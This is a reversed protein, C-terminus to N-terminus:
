IYKQYDLYEGEKEFSIYLEDSKGEGLLKGKEIYDYLKYNSITINSYEVNIGNIQSIIVKNNELAIIIGSEITPVLYNKSVKLKAGNNYKEKKTYVLQETFVSQTTEKEKIINGFYKKYIDRVKIYNPSETYIKQNISAKMKPNQKVSIMGLLFIIITYMAQRIMKKIKRKLVLKKKVM